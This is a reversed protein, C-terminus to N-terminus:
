ENLGVPILKSKMRSSQISPETDGPRTLEPTPRKAKCIFSLQINCRAPFVPMSPQIIVNNARGLLDNSRLPILKSKM